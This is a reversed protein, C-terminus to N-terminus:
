SLALGPGLEWLWFAKFNLCCWTAEPGGLVLEWLPDLSSKLWSLVLNDPYRGEKPLNSAKFPCSRIMGLAKFPCCKIGNLTKFPYHRVGYGRLCGGITRKTSSHMLEWRLRNPGRLGFTM